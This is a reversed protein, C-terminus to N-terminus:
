VRSLRREPGSYSSDHRYRRENGRWAETDGRVAAEGTREIRAEERRVTDSVEETGQVQRKKLTVEERVVPTKEVRVEEEMLPIRIEEDEDISGSAASGQAAPRREIVVEERTVPVELTREETVVEKRVRVEGAQVREKEARLEEERLEISQTAETSGPSRQAAISGSGMGRGLSGLDAGSEYLCNQAEEARAGATVTVLTGGARFGQEFHQADEEPVGMGVLAGLLGGAAAGIGAGALTSALTGGAIIPGIGPIALAGVGALLGIVGGLVGGGMAGTAAGEAARTGTGEILEKQQGRDKIAVGIQSESFGEQKLRQIAREADAQNHFLGVVTGQTTFEENKRKSMM